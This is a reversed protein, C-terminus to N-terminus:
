LFHKLRQRLADPSIGLQTMLRGLNMKPHSFGTKSTRLPRIGLEGTLFTHLENARPEQVFWTENMQAPLASAVRLPNVLNFRSRHPDFILYPSSARERWDDHGPAFREFKQENGHRDYNVLVNLHQRYAALGRESWIRRRDDIRQGITAFGVFFYEIAAGAVPQRACFFIAMDDRKLKARVDRRCVGWGAYSPSGQIWSASFFSPDDGWDYFSGADYSALLEAIDAYKAAALTAKLLLRESRPFVQRYVCLYVTM